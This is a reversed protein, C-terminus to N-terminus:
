NHLYFSMFFETHLEFENKEELKNSVSNYTELSTLGIM